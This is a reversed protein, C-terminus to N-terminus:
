RLKREASLRDWANNIVALRETAIRIVEPPMGRAIAKDPHNESVLKHYHKKLEDNSMDRELGLQAYPDEALTLHRSAIRRFATEDFEFLDAVRKVYALEAEHIADDAKAIHFLGDLIDELLIPTDSFANALQIAYEEYGNTTAQALQFLKDIYIKEEASADILSNFAEIEVQLVVGDAKAMKASLAILGTTFIVDRSAQPSASSSKDLLMHGAFAGLLAGIPGGLIYGIGAGGIKGWITERM